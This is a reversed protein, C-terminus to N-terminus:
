ISKVIYKRMEADEEAEEAAVAAAEAAEEAAVAEDLLARISLDIKRKETDIGIIKVNVVQGISLVDEPRAIKERAIRSIHILGDVGDAVSAFAGFPLMNVIKAEVVDGEAHAQTFQYFTDMELTKYGLSIRRAERDFEKVYVDIEDGVSVVEAPSKIRKYSLETNHVMGDVGGIDVFAGYSALNKVKGMYHKGVEITDWVAAERERREELKVVRISGLLRKRGEDIDIIKIRQTTGVLTSLDGDKPIGTQSAPIFVRNKEIMMVVGGKVAETVKGEFIAGEKCNAIFDKWNKANDIRKKSLNAVGERDNVRIVFADIEDGVKFMDRLKVNAEDTVQDYAIVGTVKTGLDLYIEADTIATIIGRVTEGTHLTKLSDELMDEFKETMELNNMHKYVETIISDPTSAGAAIGTKASPSKSVDTLDSVSEIWRTDPCRARCLEYLKRTNSSDRGGIVIMMDSEASLREAEKQRKETVNCITDYIKPNTYLEKIKKQCKQWVELNQTTQAAIVPTKKRAVADDLISFLEDETLFAHSEGTVYSMIGMVEPHEPAGYLIFCTDDDTNEAAIRHIRKVFPCTMDVVEFNPHREALDRLYEETGRETGHTRIVMVTRKGGDSEIAAARAEEFVADPSITRVGRETLGRNYIDNHILKGLIYIGSVDDREILSEVYDTARKVGFCFGSEAAIKVSM